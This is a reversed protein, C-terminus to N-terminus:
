PVRYDRCGAGPPLARLQRVKMAGVKMPGVKMPNVYMHCAATHCVNMRRGQRRGACRGAARDPGGDKPVSAGQGVSLALFRAPM